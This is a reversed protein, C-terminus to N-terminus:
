QFETIIRDLQKLLASENYVSDIVVIESKIKESNAIAKAVEIGTSGKFPRGMGSPMKRGFYNFLAINSKFRQYRYVWPDYTLMMIRNKDLKGGFKKVRVMSTVYGRSEVGFLVNIEVHHGRQILNDAILTGLIGTYKFQGGDKMWDYAPVIFIRIAKRKQPSIKQFAFVDKVSTRTLLPTQKARSARLTGLEVQMMEISQALPNINANRVKHLGISARDFSFVGFNSNYGIKQTDIIEKNNKFRLKKLDREVKRKVEKFHDFYQYKNHNDLAELSDPTKEGFWSTSNLQRKSSNIVSSQFRRQNDVSLNEFESDVFDLYSGLSEFKLYSVKGYKMEAKYKKPKIM